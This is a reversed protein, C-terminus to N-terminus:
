VPFSGDDSFAISFSKSGLNCIEDFISFNIENLEENFGTLLENLEYIEPLSLETFISEGWASDFYDQEKKGNWDNKNSPEFQLDLKKTFVAM